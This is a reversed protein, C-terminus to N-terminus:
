AFSAVEDVEMVRLLCGKVFRIHDQMAAQAGERDQKKLAQYINGHGEPSTNASLDYTRYRCLLSKQQVNEFVRCFEPNGSAEAIMGHFRLDEEVHKSKDRAALYTKTREISEAMERLLAPTLKAAAISHLELVERFDFLDSVDKSSFERVYAGRRAEICVLGEAELRNLAERVPSKSIGLQTALLEETLRMGERLTGDLLQGKISRYTLETLNPINTLKKM